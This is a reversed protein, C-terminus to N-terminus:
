LHLHMLVARNVSWTKIASYPTLMCCQFHYDLPLQSPSPHMNWLEWTQSWSLVSFDNMYLSSVTGMILFTFDYVPFYLNSSLCCNFSFEILSRIPVPQNPVIRRFLSLTGSAWRQHRPKKTQLTQKRNWKSWYEEARSSPLPILIQKNNPVMHNIIWNIWRNM